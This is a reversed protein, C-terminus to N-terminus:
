NYRPSAGGGGWGRLAKLSTKVIREVHPPSCLLSSGLLAAPSALRPGTLTFKSCAVYRQFLLALSILHRRVVPQQRSIAVAISFLLFLVTFQRKEFEVAVQDYEPLYYHAIYHFLSLTWARHQSTLISDIPATLLVHQQTLERPNGRHLFRHVKEKSQVKQERLNWQTSQGTRM